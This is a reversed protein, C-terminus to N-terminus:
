PQFDAVHEWFTPSVSDQAFLFVEDNEVVKTLAAPARKSSRVASPLTGTGGYADIWMKRVLLSNSILTRSDKDTAELSKELGKLTATRKSKTELIAYEFSSMVRYKASSDVLELSQYGLRKSYRYKKRDPERATFILDLDGRFFKGELQSFDYVDLDVTGVSTREMALHCFKVAIGILGELAGIRILKPESGEVLKEVQSTLSRISKLYVEALSFAVPTWGSKRRSGRDLLVCGLSTEVRNVIRSLQPQSIGVNQAAGSLNKYAVAKAIVSLEWSLAELAIRNM